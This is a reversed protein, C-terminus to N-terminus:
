QQTDGQAEKMQSEARAIEDRVKQQYREFNKQLTQLLAFIAQPTLALRVVCDAQLTDPVPCSKELIPPRTQFFTLYFLGREISHQSVVFDASLLPMGDSIRFDMKTPKFEAMLDHEDAM